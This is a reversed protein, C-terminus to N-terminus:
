PDQQDEPPPKYIGKPSRLNEEKSREPKLSDLRISDQLNNSIDDDIPDGDMYQENLEIEIDNSFSSSSSLSVDALIGHNSHWKRLFFVSLVICVGILGAFGYDVMLAQTELNQFSEPDVCNIIEAASTSDTTSIIPQSADFLLASNM